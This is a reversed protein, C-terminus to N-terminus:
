LGTFLDSWKICLLRNLQFKKGFPMACHSWISAHTGLTPIVFCQLFNHTGNRELLGCGHSLVDLHARLPSRGYSDRSKHSPVPCRNLPSLKPHWRGCNETRSDSSGVFHDKCFTWLPNQTSVMQVHFLLKQSMCCVSM